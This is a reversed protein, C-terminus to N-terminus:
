HNARNNVGVSVFFLLLAEQGANVIALVPPTLAIGLRTRARVKGAQFGFRHAITIMVNNVTLFGPRGKSLESVPNEAQGPGVRIRFDLLPDGEEQNIHLGRADFHTRDDRHVASM